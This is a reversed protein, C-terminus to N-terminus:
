ELPRPADEIERLREDCYRQWPTLTADGSRVGASACAGFADAARERLPLAARLFADRFRLRDAPVAHIARPLPMTAIAEAFRSLLLGLLASAVVHEGLEGGELPVLAQRAVRLAASRAAVWQAYDEEVFTQFGPRDLDAEAEPRGVGLADEVRALAEALPASEGEVGRPLSPLRESGLALPREDDDEDERALEALGMERRAREVREGGGTRVRAASAPSAAQARPGEGCGTTGASFLGLLLVSALLQNATARRM